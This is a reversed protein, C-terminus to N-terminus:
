VFDKEKCEIVTKGYLETRRKIENQLRTTTASYKDTNVFVKKGGCRAIPTTYHYLVFNQIYYPTDHELNVDRSGMMFSSIVESKSHKKTM